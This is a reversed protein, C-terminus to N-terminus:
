PLTFFVTRVKQEYVVYLLLRVYLKCASCPYWYASQLGMNLICKSEKANHKHTHTGKLKNTKYTCQLSIYTSIGCEANEIINKMTRGAYGVHQM